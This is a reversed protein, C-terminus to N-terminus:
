GFPLLPFLASPISALDLVECLPRALVFYELELKLVFELDVLDQIIARPIEVIVKQHNSSPLLAHSGIINTECMNGELHM